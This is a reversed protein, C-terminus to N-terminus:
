ILKKKEKLDEKCFFHVDLKGFLLFVIAQFKPEFAKADQKEQYELVEIFLILNKIYKKTVSKEKNLIEDDIIDDDFADM